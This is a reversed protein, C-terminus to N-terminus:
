NGQGGYVCEVEAANKWDQRCSINIESIPGENEILRYPGDGVEYM